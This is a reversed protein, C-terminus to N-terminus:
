VCSETISYVMMFQLKVVTGQGWLRNSATSTADFFQALVPPGLIPNYQMPAADDGNNILALRLEPYGCTKWAPSSTLVPPALSPGSSPSSSTSSSSSSDSTSLPPVTKCAPYTNLFTLTGFGYVISTPWMLTFTGGLDSVLYQAEFAMGVHTIRMVTDDSIRYLVTRTTADFIIALHHLEMPERERLPKVYMFDAAPDSPDTRWRQYLGYIRDNTLLFGFVLNLTPDIALFGSSALRYDNDQVVATPYPSNAVKFSKSGMAIQMYLSGRTPLEAPVSNTLLYKFNDNIINSTKGATKTFVKSNLIGGTPSAELQGDDALWGNISYPQWEPYTPM